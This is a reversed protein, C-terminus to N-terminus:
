HQFKCESMHNCGKKFSKSAKSKEAAVKHPAGNPLHTSSTPRPCKFLQVISSSSSGGGSSSGSSGNGGMQVWVLWIITQTKAPLKKIRIHRPIIQERGQQNEKVGRQHM